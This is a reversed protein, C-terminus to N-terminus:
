VAADPKPPTGGGLDVTREPEPEAAAEAPVAPVGSPDTPPDLKAAMTVLEPPVEGLDRLVSLEATDPDVLGDLVDLDHEAQEADRDRGLDRFAARARRLALRAEDSRGVAHLAVGLNLDCSAEDGTRGLSTFIGRAGLFREIADDARDGDLLAVGLDFDGVAALDPRRHDLFTQRATDLLAIADAVDGEDHHLVARDLVCMAARVPMGSAAYGREARHLARRSEETHGLARLSRAAAAEAGAADPGSPEHHVFVRRARKLLALADEHHDADALSDAALRQTRAAGLEDGQERLLATARGATEAAELPRGDARLRRAADILDRADPITTIRVSEEPDGVPGPV